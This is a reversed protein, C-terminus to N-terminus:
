EAHRWIYGGSTKRKGSLCSSINTAGTMNQADKCSSYTMIFNGLTDYQSVPIKNKEVAKTTSNAGYKTAHVMNEKRTCWELNLFSNNGKNGDKHNIEPKNEPNPIFALAVLRHVLFRGRREGKKHLDVRQYGHVNTYSIVKKRISKSSHPHLSVVRGMSSVQYLGEYGEIDKWIEISEM